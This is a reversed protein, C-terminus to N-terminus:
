AVKVARIKPIAVLLSVVCVAIVVISAYPLIEAHRERVTGFCWQGILRIDWWLNLLLWRRDDYIHRLFGAIPPMILFICIWSLVLPVSKQMWSGTALLVLSLVVAMVSGFSVIAVAIRWNEKFYGLTDETLYGFQIYLVLAPLTTVLLVLGGVALLKGVLYHFLHIRRSLFFIMGGQQHDRGVLISGAFALIIVTIVEQGVMFDRYTEGNGSAREFLREVFPAADPMNALLTARFYIVAFLFLFALSAFAFLIWFLKRRFVLGLSARAITWCGWWASRPAESFERYGSSLTSM